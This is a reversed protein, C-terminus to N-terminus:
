SSILSYSSSIGPTAKNRKDERFGLLSSTGSTLKGTLTGLNIVREKENLIGDNGPNLINLSTTGDDKLRLFGIQLVNSM